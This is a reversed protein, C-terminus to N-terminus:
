ILLGIEERESFSLYRGSVQNLISLPMGGNHRFWRTGVASSADVAQAAKESTVQLLTNGSNGSLRM